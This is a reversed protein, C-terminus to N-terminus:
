RVVSVLREAFREIDSLRACTDVRLCYPAYRRMLSDGEEWRDPTEPNLWFVQRVRRSLERLVDSRPEFYNGRADGLFILTSRHDLDQHTLARFDLLARGYDTAGRGWELLAEEIAREWPHKAFGETIEGLRNSFAFLRVNPLVESLGHLFLLLFRAISAVSNSLDCVVYVAARERRQQRWRLNFLAGDYAVNDRLTRKLDLVGRRERRRRRRQNSALREALRRVVRDMDEFYAKPLQDLNGSLASRLIAQKGTADVQLAYQADVYARVQEQVYQRLYRLVSRVDPADELEPRDMLTGLEDVGLADLLRAVAASKDRLASMAAVEPSGGHAQVRWALRVHDRRLIADILERLGPSALPAIRAQLEAPSVQGLLTRKAPTRFALQGFFREFCEAFRAKEQPSKALALGLAHRLVVPDSLGVQQLVAYADLTEAPSVPIEASRLARVFRALTVDMAVM